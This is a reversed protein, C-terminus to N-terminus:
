FPLEDDDKVTEVKADEDAKPVDEVPKPTKVSFSLKMYKKGDKSTNTWSSIWYEVGDILATGKANPDSEKEKRDNAFLTGTNPKQEYSM